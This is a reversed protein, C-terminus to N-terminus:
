YEGNKENDGVQKNNEKANDKRSVRAALGM